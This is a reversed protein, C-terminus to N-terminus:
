LPTISGLMSEVSVEKNDKTNWWHQLRKLNHHIANYIDPFASLFADIFDIPKGKNYGYVCRTFEASRKSQAIREDRLNSNFFTQPNASLSKSLSYKVEYAHLEDIFVNEIDDAILHRAQQETLVPYLAQMMDRIEPNRTLAEKSNQRERTGQGLSWNCTAVLLNLAENYEAKATTRKFLHYQACGWGLMSFYGVFPLFSLTSAVMGLVTSYAIREDITKLAVSKEQFLDIAARLLLLHENNHLNFSHGANISLALLDGDAAKADDSILFYKQSKAQLQNIKSNVGLQNVTTYASPHRWGFSEFASAM